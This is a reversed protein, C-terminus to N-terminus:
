VKEVFYLRNKSRTIAVYMINAEEQNKNPHFTWHLLFVNERELGKAQHVTSFVVKDEDDVDKFLDNINAQVDSLTKADSSLEILCEYKDTIWATSRAKALCRKTESVKWADLWTLFSEITKARSKKILYLLGEGVDRGAINAKRGNRLFLMCTKILPANSRSLVFDGDAVKDLLSDATIHHIEGPKAKAYAEIEPVYEQALKIVAKSCRYSISLPLTKASLRKRMEPITSPSIGNFQYISQASDGFAIFRNDPAAAKMVIEFQAKSIDQMEDLLTFQYKTPASYGYVIPLWLMEVFDCFEKREKAIRLMKCLTRIFEARDLEVPCIGFDDMLTDLKSPTDILMNKALNTAKDLLYVDEYCLKPHLERIITECKNPVIKINPIHHRLISLGLSHITSITIRPGSYDIRETLEVAIKKNFAVVLTKAQKNPIRKVAETLTKTKGSGAKAEIIFNGTKNCVADFVKEQYKSWQIAQKVM